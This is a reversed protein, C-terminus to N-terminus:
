NKKNVYLHVVVNRANVEREAMSASLGDVTHVSGVDGFVQEMYVSATKQNSLLHRSKLNFCYKDNFPLLSKTM